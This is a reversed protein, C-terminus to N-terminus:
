KKKRIMPIKLGQESSEITIGLRKFRTEEKKASMVWHITAKKYSPALKNFFEWAKPNAKIQAQYEPSLTATKRQEYSYVKSKSEKRNAYAELGPKQVLGEKKM